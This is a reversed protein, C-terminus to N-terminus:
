EDFDGAWPEGDWGDAQESYEWEAPDWHYTKGADDTISYGESTQALGKALADIDILEFAGECSEFAELLADVIEEDGVEVSVVSRVAYFREVAACLAGAMDPAALASSCAFTRVILDVMGCGLEVRGTEKLSAAQQDFICREDEATLTIGNEQLAAHTKQRLADLRGQPALWSFENM